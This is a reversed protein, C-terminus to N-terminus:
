SIMVIKMPIKVSNNVKPLRITANSAKRSLLLLYFFHRDQRGVPYATDTLVITMKGLADVKPTPAKKLQLIGYTIYFKLHCFEDPNNSVFIQCKKYPFSEHPIVRSLDVSVM